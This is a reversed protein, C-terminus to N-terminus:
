FRYAVSIEPILNGESTGDGASYHWMKAAGGVVYHDSFVYEVSAGYILSIYAEDKAYFGTISDVGTTLGNKFGLGIELKLALEETISYGPAIGIDFAGGKNYEFGTPISAGVHWGFGLGKKDSNKYHGIEIGVNTSDPTSYVNNDPNDSTWTHANQVSTILKVDFANANTSVLGTIVMALAIKTFSNKM